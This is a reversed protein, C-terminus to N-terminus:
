VVNGDQISIRSITGMVDLLVIQRDVRYQWPPEVFRTWLKRGLMDWAALELEAAMLVVDDYQSWFWFGTDAGDEWLRAPQRLDYMLLRQGAGVFLRDTEPVLLIGPHFGCGAPSYRQVVVLFPWGSERGRVACFCVSSGGSEELDFLEALAARKQYEALM